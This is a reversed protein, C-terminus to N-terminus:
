HTSALTNVIYCLTSRSESASCDVDRLRLAIEVTMCTADEIKLMAAIVGEMKSHNCSNRVDGEAKFPKCSDHIDRISRNCNDHVDCRSYCIFCFLMDCLSCYCACAHEFSSVLDDVSVWVRLITLFRRRHWLLM